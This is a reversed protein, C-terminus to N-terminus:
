QGGLLDAIANNFGQPPTAHIYNRAINILDSDSSVLLHCKFYLATALHLSDAAALTTASCIEEAQSMLGPTPEPFGVIDLDERLTERIAAYVEALQERPLATPGARRSGMRRSIQVVTYGRELMSEAWRDTKKAEIMELIGFPSSLVNFGRERIADMMPLVSESRRDVVDILVTTDLYITPRDTSYTTM